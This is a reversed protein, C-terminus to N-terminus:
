GVLWKIEIVIFHKVEERVSYFKKAWQLSQTNIKNPCINNNTTLVMCFVYIYQTPISSCKKTWITVVPSWKSWTVCVCFVMYVIQWKTKNDLPIFLFQSPSPHPATGTVRLSLLFNVSKSTTHSPLLNTATHEDLSITKSKTKWNETDSHSFSITSLVCPVHLSCWCCNFIFM